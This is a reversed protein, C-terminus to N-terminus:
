DDREPKILFISQLNYKNYDYTNVGLVIEGSELLNSKIRRYLLASLLTNESPRDGQRLGDQTTQVPQPTNHHDSILLHLL